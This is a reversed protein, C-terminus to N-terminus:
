NSRIFTRARGGSTVWPGETAKEARELCQDAYTKKM